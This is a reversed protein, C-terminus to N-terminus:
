IIYKSHYKSRIMLGISLIIVSRIMLCYKINNCIKDDSMNNCIKILGISLIIVSRIM